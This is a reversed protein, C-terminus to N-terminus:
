GKKMETYKMVLRLFEATAWIEPTAPDLYIRCFGRRGIHQVSFHEPILNSDRPVNALVWRICGEAKEREGRLLHVIGLWSTYTVWPGGYPREAWPQLHLPYRHLGGMRKDWINDKLYDITRAVIPDKADILGFLAPTMM